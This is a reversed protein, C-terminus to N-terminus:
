RFALDWVMVDAMAKGDAAKAPEIWWAYMARQCSLDIENSGSSRIVDVSVVKGSEDIKVKLQVTPYELAIVDVQGALTLRPRITKVKRGVRAEISGPRFVVSGVKSFPDSESDSQPAPDGAPLNLKQRIRQALEPEAPTIADDRTASVGFPAPAETPRAADPPPAPAAAATSFSNPCTRAAPAV